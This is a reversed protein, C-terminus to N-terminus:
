LGKGGAILEYYTTCESTRIHGSAYAHIHVVGCVADGVRCMGVCVVGVCGMGSCLRFM